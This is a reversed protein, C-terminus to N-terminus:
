PEVKVSEIAQMLLQAQKGNIFVYQSPIVSANDFDPPAFIELSTLEGNNHGIRAVLWGLDIAITM